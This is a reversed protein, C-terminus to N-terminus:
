WCRSLDPAKVKLFEGGVSLNRQDFARSECKLTCKNELHYHEEIEGCVSLVQETGVGNPEEEPHGSRLPSSKVGRQAQVNRRVERSEETVKGRRFGGKELFVCVGTGDWVVCSGLCGSSGWFGRRWGPGRASFATTVPCADRIGHPHRPHSPKVNM